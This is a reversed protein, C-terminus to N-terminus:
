SGPFWRLSSEGAGRSRGEKVALPSPRVASSVARRRVCVNSFAVSVSPSVQLSSLLSELFSVWPGEYCTPCLTSILLGSFHGFHSCVHPSCLMSHTGVVVLQSALPPGSFHEKFRAFQFYNIVQILATDPAPHHFLASHASSHIFLSLSRHM